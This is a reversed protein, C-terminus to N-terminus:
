GIVAERGLTTSARSHLRGGRESRVMLSSGAALFFFFVFFCFSSDARAGGSRPSSALGFISLICWSASCRCASCLSALCCAAARCLVGAAEAWRRERACVRVVALSHRPEPSEMADLLRVAKRWCGAEAYGHLVHFYSDGDAAAIAAAPASDGGETSTSSDDPALAAVPQRPATLAAWVIAMGQIDRSRRHTHLAENYAATDAAPGMRRLLQRSEHSRRGKRCAQLASQWAALPAEACVQQNALLSIATKWRGRRACASLASTLGHPPVM